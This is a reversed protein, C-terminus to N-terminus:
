QGISRLGARITAVESLVKRCGGSAAKLGEQRSLDTDYLKNCVQSLDKEAALLGRYATDAQRAARANAEDFGQIRANLKDTLSQVENKSTALQKKLEESLRKENIEAIVAAERQVMAEAAAAQAKAEAERAAKVANDKEVELYVKEQQLAITRQQEAITRRKERYVLFGAVAVGLALVLSAAAVAFARRRKKRYIEKLKRSEAVALREVKQRSIWPVLFESVIDYFYTNNRSERRVLRTQQVLARLADQLDNEAVGEDEHVQSVLDYELVINRTGSRTVMRSLLAVAPDRLNQPLRNLSDALYDELLGQVGKERFLAEPDRSKWLELCAIQVESLNLKGGQNRTAIAAALERTVNESLERGFSGPYKEFSGRIISPLADMGPPTLRLSQDSLDPWRAVLKSLKALYDERFSFLLKVPISIERHLDSILDLVAKQAAQAEEVADGRPVEEFLTAFEEFQDFILLPRQLPASVRNEQLRKKLAEASIVIRSRTDEPGVFNSPLFPAQGNNNTSIREVVIEEGPKPQIRLRDPTFGESIAAPIFGANILSSKGCGSEGYFMVGRYVAVYRLLKRTEEERAFFINQDVYRFSEIGRYPTDPLTQPLLSVTSTSLM